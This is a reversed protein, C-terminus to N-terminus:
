LSFIDPPQADSVVCSPYFFHQFVRLGQGGFVIDIARSALHINVEPFIAVTDSISAVAKTIPSIYGRVLEGIANFIAQGTTAKVFFNYANTLLYFLLPVFTHAVIWVL